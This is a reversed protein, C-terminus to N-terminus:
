QEIISAEMAEQFQKKASLEFSERSNQLLLRYKQILVDRPLSSVKQIEDPVSELKDIKEQKVDFSTDQQDKNYMQIVRDEFIGPEENIFALRATWGVPVLANYHSKGHYSLRIPEVQSDCHEHFTRMPEKSYSFIEIARGYIESLAQLEIDDGWIGNQRKREVYEEITEKDREIFNRFFDKAILVYDM